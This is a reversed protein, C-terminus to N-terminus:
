VGVAKDRPVSVGTDVPYFITVTIFIDELIIM